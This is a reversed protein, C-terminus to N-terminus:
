KWRLIDTQLAFYVHHEVNYVIITFYNIFKWNLRSPILKINLTDIHNIGFHHTYHVQCSACIITKMIDLETKQTMGVSEQM